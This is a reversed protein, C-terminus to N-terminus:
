APVVTKIAWAGENNLGRAWVTPTFTIAAPNVGEKNIDM